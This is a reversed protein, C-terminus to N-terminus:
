KTGAIRAYVFQPLRPREQGPRGEVELLLRGPRIARSVTIFWHLAWSLRRQVDNEVERAAEDSTPCQFKMSEGRIGVLRV